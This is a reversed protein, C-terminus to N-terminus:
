YYQLYNDSVLATINYINAPYQGPITTFLERISPWYYQLCNGSVPGINSYITAPCCATIDYITAPYQDPITTFLQRTSDCHYQLYHDPTLVSIESLKGAKKGLIYQLITQTNSSNLIWWRLVALERATLEYM